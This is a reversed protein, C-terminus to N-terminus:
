AEAFYLVEKKEKSLFTFWSLAFIFYNVYSNYELLLADNLRCNLLPGASSEFLAIETIPHSNLQYNLKMGEIEVEGSNAMFKDAILSGLPQSYENVLNLVSNKRFKEEVIFFVRHTDHCTIRIAQMEKDIKIRVVVKDEDYVDFQPYPNKTILKLYM